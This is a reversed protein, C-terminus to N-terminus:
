SIVSITEKILSVTGMLQKQIGSIDYFLYAYIANSNIIDSRQVESIKRFFENLPHWGLSIHHWTSSILVLMESFCTAKIKLTSLIRLHLAAYCKALIWGSNHKDKESDLIAQEPILM